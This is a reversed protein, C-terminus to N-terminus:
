SKMSSVSRGSLTVETSQTSSLPGTIGAGDELRDFVRQDGKASACCCALDSETAELPFDNLRQGGVRGRGILAGLVIAGIAPLM